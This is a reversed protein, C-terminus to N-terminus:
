FDIEKSLQNLQSDIEDLDQSNDLEWGLSGIDTTAARPTIVKLALYAVVLAVVALAMVKPFNDTTTKKSNTM